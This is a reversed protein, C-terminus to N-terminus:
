NGYFPSIITFLEEQRKIIRIISKQISFAFSFDEYLFRQEQNLLIYWQM